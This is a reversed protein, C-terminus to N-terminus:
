VGVAQPNIIKIEAGDSLHQLGLTAVMEGAALGEAIEVQGHLRQGIVVSRREARGGAIVFVYTSRGESVVAAEPVLIADSKEGVQLSVSMFMGPRLRRDANELEAQIRLSRTVPDVRTDVRSVRGEFTTGSFAASIARVPLGPQVRSLFREPVSFDLRLISIDDLTTLRQHPQVFAGPSVDRLGVVGDFPARIERDRLAAEIMALRAEAAAYAARLEDVRAQSVNQSRLLRNARELQNAVDSLMAQQERLEAEERDRDLEILLRGREVEEGEEFHIAIVRGAVPAVLEVSERALTTGVAEVTYSVIGTEAEAVAVPVASAAVATEEQAAPQGLAQWALYAGGAIVAVALLQIM